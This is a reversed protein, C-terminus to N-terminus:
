EMSSKKLNKSLKQKKLPLLNGNLKNMYWDGGIDPLLSQLKGKHSFSKPLEVPINQFMSKM